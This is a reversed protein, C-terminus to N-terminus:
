ACGRGRRPTGAGGRLPKTGGEVLQERGPEFPCRAVPHGLVLLDEAVVKFLGVAVAGFEANEIVLRARQALSCGATKGRGSTARGLSAIEARGDVEEAPGRSEERRLAGFSDLDHEVEDIRQRDPATRSAASCM